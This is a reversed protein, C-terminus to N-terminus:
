QKIELWSPMVGFTQFYHDNIKEMLYNIASKTDEKMDPCYRQMEIIKALHAGYAAMQCHYVAVAEILAMPNSGLHRRRMAANMLAHNIDSRTPEAASM